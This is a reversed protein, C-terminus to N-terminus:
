IKFSGINDRLVAASDSRFTDPILKSSFAEINLLQQTQTWSPWQMSPSSGVNPDLNNIFNIYYRQLTSQAYGHTYFLAISDSVHFTGLIPIGYFYSSLFSWTEPVEKSYNELFVRRTLTFVIDGLLAALRKFQPYFNNFYGTRFPSGATPDDPYTAVLADITERRANIFFYKQLYDSLEETTTLNQQMLSFLTGEDEQDGIILPVKAYQGQQLLKDPSDPLVKGDPRPLFSLAVSSYDFISPVSSAAHLFADYPVERLCQLTDSADACGAANVVRNYIDQAKSGDIPDAPIVSGSDMIAGRFLPNGKYTNDGGYLAMQDFCSIAGSSVGGITVKSPDGGFKAINDAVWELALRQDLLGLNAAGDKLVEKGALFGWASNRHNAAVFIVPGAPMSARIISSADYTNTGGLTFGGGFLWFFVPLKDGPKTGSPRQINLTLCDESQQTAKNILPTNLLTQLIGPPMINLNSSLLVQPCSKAIGVASVAGLNSTIPQPPRLRLNGVPPQAYPIGNFTDIGLLESGTVTATDLEVVPGGSSGRKENVIASAALGFLTVTFLM